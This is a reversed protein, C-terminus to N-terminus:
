KRIGPRMSLTTLKAKIVPKPPPPPPVVKEGPTGDWTAEARAKAAEALATWGRHLERRRAKGLREGVMGDYVEGVALVCGTETLAEIELFALSRAFLGVSRAWLIQENPVWDVIRVEELEGKGNGKVRRLRVLTGISLRGEAESFLPNWDKWGDLDKLVDWVAFAPAQVGVRAQIRYGM